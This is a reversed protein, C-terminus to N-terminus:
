EADYYRKLSKGTLRATVWREATAAWEGILATVTYDKHRALRRLQAKTSADLILPLRCKTGDIPHRERWRAQTEANTLAM